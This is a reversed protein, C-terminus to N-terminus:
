FLSPKSDDKSRSEPEPNADSKAPQVERAPDFTAATEFPATVPEEGQFRTLIEVRAEAAELVSYCTRLLGIGREFRALSAELGLEGDELQSVIVQLEELSEEFKAAQGPESDAPKRKAM